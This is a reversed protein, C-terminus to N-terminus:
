LIQFNSNIQSKYNANKQFKVTMTENHGIFNPSCEAHVIIMRVYL